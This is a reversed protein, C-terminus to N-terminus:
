HRVFPFFHPQSPFLIHSAARIGAATWQPRKIPKSKYSLIINEPTIVSILFHSSSSSFLTHGKGVSETAANSLQHHNLSHTIFHYHPSYGLAVENCNFYLKVLLPNLFSGPSPLILFQHNSNCIGSKRELSIENWKMENKKM